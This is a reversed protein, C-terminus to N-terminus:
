GTGGLSNECLSWCDTHCDDDGSPEVTPQPPLMPSRASDDLPLESNVQMETVPLATNRDPSEARCYWTLVLPATAMLPTFFRTYPDDATCLASVDSMWCGRVCVSSFSYLRTVVRATVASLWIVLPSAPTVSDVVKGLLLESALWSLITARRIPARVLRPLM